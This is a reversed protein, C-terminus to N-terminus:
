LDTWVNFIIQYSLGFHFPGVIFEFPAVTTLPGSSYAAELVEYM